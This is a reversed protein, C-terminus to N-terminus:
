VLCPDTRLHTLALWLRKTTGETRSRSWSGVAPTRPRTKERPRQGTGDAVQSEARSEQGWLRRQAAGEGLARCAPQPLACTATPAARDGRPHNHHTSMRGPDASAASARKRGRRAFLAQHPALCCGGPVLTPSALCAGQRALSIRGPPRPRQGNKGPHPARKRRTQTLLARKRSPASQARALASPNPAAQPGMTFFARSRAPTQPGSAAGDCSRARASDHRSALSSIYQVAFCDYKLGRPAQGPSSFEEQREGAGGPLM